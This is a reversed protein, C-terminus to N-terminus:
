NLFFFSLNFQDELFSFLQPFASITFYLWNSSQLVIINIILLSTLLFRCNRHKLHFSRNKNAKLFVYKVNDMLFLLRKYVAMTLNIHIQPIHLQPSTSSTTWVYITYLFKLANCKACDSCCVSKFCVIIYMAIHFIRHSNIFNNGSEDVFWFFFILVSAYGIGAM